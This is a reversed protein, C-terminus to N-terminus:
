QVRQKRLVDDVIREVQPLFPESASGNVYMVRGAPHGIAAAIENWRMLPSAIPVILPKEETAPLAFYALWVGYIVMCMAAKVMDVAAANSGHLHGSLVTSFMVVSATVGMGLAIGFTRTKVSLGIRKSFTFLMLLLGIQMLKVSSELNIVATPLGSAYPAHSNLAVLLAVVLMLAAAWRFAIVSLDRLGDLPRMAAVFVEQIVFFGLLSSVASGVWYTAFYWKYNGRLSINLLLVSQITGFLSYIFFKPYTRASGRTGMVMCVLAQLSIGGIWIGNSLFQGISHM